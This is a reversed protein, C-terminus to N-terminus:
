IPRSLGLRSGGQLKEFTKLFAADTTVPKANRVMCQAAVLADFHDLGESEHLKVAAAFDQPALPEIAGEPVVQALVLWAENREEPSFGRSKMLLDLEILSTQSVRRGAGLDSLLEVAEECRARVKL